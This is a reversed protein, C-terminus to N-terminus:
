SYPRRGWTQTSSTIGSRLIPQAAPAVSGLVAFYCFCSECTLVYGSRQKDGMRLRGRVELMQADAQQNAMLAGDLCHNLHLTRGLLLLLGGGPVRLEWRVLLPAAGGQM